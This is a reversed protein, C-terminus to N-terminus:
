SSTRPWVRLGSRPAVPGSSRSLPSRPTRESVYLGLMQNSFNGVLLHPRGSGDDYDAADVGMAGRAVGDEGFAVGASVAEEPSRATATTATSSTRSRITPWSCIPGATAHRLRARRHRPVQPRTPSAPRGRQRGRIARRGPQPLAQSSARTPNRRATPSRPATSRVGSTARRPEMPRLQRRLSRARGDNDYDLWAASTGFAPTPSAATKRSTASSARERRQPLSPRRRPRHHLRRRPRRQRLRGRRHGTRVDGCGARQGANRGHVHREQQQPLAGSLSKVPKAGDLRQRQVPRHRALRRRRCRLLRLRLGDDGAAVEQRGQRRQAQLPHRRSPHRRHLPVAANSRLLAFLPWSCITPKM